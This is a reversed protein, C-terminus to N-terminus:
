FSGEAALLRFSLYGVASSTHPSLPLIVVITWQRIVLAEYLAFDLVVYTPKVGLFPSLHCNSIYLSSLPGFCDLILQASGDLHDTLLHM